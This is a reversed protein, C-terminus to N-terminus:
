GRKPGLESIMIPGNGGPNEDVSHDLNGHLENGIITMNTVRLSHSSLFTDVKITISEYQLLARHIGPGLRLTLKNGTISYYGRYTKGPTIEPIPDKSEEPVVELNLISNFTKIARNVCNRQAVSLNNETVMQFTDIMEKTLKKSIVATEDQLPPMISQAISKLEQLEHECCSLKPDLSVSEMIISYELAKRIEEYPMRGEASWNWPM